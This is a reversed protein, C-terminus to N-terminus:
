WRSTASLEPHAPFGDTEWNALIKQKLDEPCNHRFGTRPPHPTGEPPLCNWVV